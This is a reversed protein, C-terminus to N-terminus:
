SSKTKSKYNLDILGADGSNSLIEGVMSALRAEKTGYSDSRWAMTM